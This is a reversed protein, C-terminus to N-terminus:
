PSRFSDDPEIFIVGHEYLAVLRCENLIIALATQAVVEKLRLDLRASLDVRPSVEFHIDTEDTMYVIVDRLPTGSFHFTLKRTALRARYERVWAPDDADSRTDRAEGHRAIAHQWAGSVELPAAVKWTFSRRYPWHRAFAVALGTFYLGAGVLGVAVLVRKMPRLSVQRERRGQRNGEARM